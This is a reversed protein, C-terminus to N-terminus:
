SGNIHTCGNVMCYIVGNVWRKLGFINVGYGGGISSITSDSATIVTGPPPPLTVPQANDDLPYGNPAHGSMSVMTWAATAADTLQYVVSSYDAFVALTTMDQVPNSNAFYASLYPGVSGQQDLGTFTSAIGAPIYTIGFDPFAVRYVQQMDAVTGTLAIVHTTLTRTEYDYFRRVVVEGLLKNTPNFIVFNYRHFGPEPSTIHTRVYNKATVSFDNVTVCSDCRLVGRANALAPTAFLSALLLFAVGGIIKQLTVYSFGGAFEVRFHLENFRLSLRAANADLGKTGALILSV